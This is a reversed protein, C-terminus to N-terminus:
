PNLGALRANDATKTAAMKGTNAMMGAKARMIERASVKAAVEKKVLQLVNKM